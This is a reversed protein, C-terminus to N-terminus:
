IVDGVHVDNGKVDMWMPELQISLEGEEAYSLNSMSFLMLVVFFKSLFKKM